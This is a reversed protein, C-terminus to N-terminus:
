PNPRETCSTRVRAVLPSRPYDRLFAAAAVRARDCRHLEGLAVVREAAREESLAGNPFARAHEEFLALARAVDGGHLAAVGARVLRTEAELTTPALKVSASTVPTSVDPPTTLVEEPPHSPPEDTWAALPSASGLPHRAIPRAKATVQASEQRPTGPDVVSDTKVSEKAGIPEFTRASAEHVEPTSPAVAHLPAAPRTARYTVVGAGGVAGAIAVTAIIKTVLVSTAANSTTATTTILGTGVGLRTVLAIRVRVRDGQTPEHGDRALELLDRDEPTLDSMANEM